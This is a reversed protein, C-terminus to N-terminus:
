KGDQTSDFASSLGGFELYGFRSPEHFTKTLTPSWSLLELKGGTWRDYRYFNARWVDGPNPAPHDLDSFPLIVEVQWKKDTDGPKQVTGEAVVKATMGKATWNWDGKISKSFGNADLQNRILADFITGLPNWQLEFYTELAQPTIFFEAVEENWLESDRQTFTALIDSDQCSWGIYLNHNDYWLRVETSEAGPASGDNVIFPSLVAAQQWVAEELIGDLHIEGSLKPVTVRNPPTLAKPSSSAPRAGAEGPSATEMGVTFGTIGLFGLGLALGTFRRASQLTRKIM